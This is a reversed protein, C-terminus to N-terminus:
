SQGRRKGQSGAAIAAAGAVALLAVFPVWANSEGPGSGSPPLAPPPTPTATVVGPAIPTPATFAYATWAVDFSCDDLFLGAVVHLTGSLTTEDPQEVTISVQILQTETQVLAAV